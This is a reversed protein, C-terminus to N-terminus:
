RPVGNVAHRGHRTAWGHVSQNSPQGRRSRFKVLIDDASPAPAPRVELRMVDSGGHDHLRVEMHLSEEVSALTHPAYRLMRKDQPVGPSAPCREGALGCGRGPCPGGSLRPRFRPPRPLSAERPGSSRPGSLGAWGRPRCPCGTAGRGQFEQVTNRAASPAVARKSSRDQRQRM